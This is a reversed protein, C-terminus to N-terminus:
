HLNMIIRLLEHVSLIIINFYWFIKILYLNSFLQAMLIIIYSFWAYHVINYFNQCDTHVDLM